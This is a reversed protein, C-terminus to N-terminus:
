AEFFGITELAEMFDKQDYQKANKMDMRYTQDSPFQKVKREEETIEIAKVASWKWDAKNTGDIFVMGKAPLTVTSPLWNMKNKDEFILDKYLEPSTEIADTTVKSGKSLETSSTFGCGMCLWTTLKESLIQEYCANGQCRGCEVLKDKDM